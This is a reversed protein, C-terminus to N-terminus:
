ENKGVEAEHTKYRPDSIGELISSVTMDVIEQHSHTPLECDIGLSLSIQKPKRIYTIKVRDIIFIDSTYIDIYDRRITTIPSTHKTTNFPDNLLKFIDDQQVFRNSSVVRQGGDLTRKTELSQEDYNLYTVNNISSGPVGTSTPDSPDGRFNVNLQSVENTGSVANTVTPDWNLWTINTIDPIIIFQGPFLLSGYSEWYVKTYPMWNAPDIFFQRFAELDQPYQWNNPQNPTQTLSNINVILEGLSTDNFDATISIYDFFGPGYGTVTNTAPDTIPLNPHWVDNLPLLFYATPSFNDYNFSIKKCNDILVESRQNVLYMYDAPFQFQDVWFDESFQEKFTVAASYERVLTRLDDIRKQSQEFGKGYKNNKGYKTNIFRMMSKNLEIDIEEPLLMDAQLSNIKDVGQQIALHMEQVNM